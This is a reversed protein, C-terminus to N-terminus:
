ASLLLADCHRTCQRVPRCQDKGVLRRAIQVLARGIDHQIFKNSQNAFLARRRHDSSVILSQCRTHIPDNPQM